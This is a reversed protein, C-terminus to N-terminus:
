LLAAASSPVTATKAAPAKETPTARVIRVPRATTTTPTVAKRLRPLAKRAPKGRLALVAIIGSLGGPYIADFIDFIIGFTSGYGVHELYRRTRLDTVKTALYLWIAGWLSKVVGKWFTRTWGSLEAKRAVTEAWFEGSALGGAGTAWLALHDRITRREIPPMEAM